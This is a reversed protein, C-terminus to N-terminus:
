GDTAADMGRMGHGDWIVDSLTNRRDVCDLEALHRLIELMGWRRDGSMEMDRKVM